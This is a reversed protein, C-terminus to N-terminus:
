SRKCRVASTQGDGIFAEGLGPVRVFVSAPWWWRGTKWFTEWVFGKM